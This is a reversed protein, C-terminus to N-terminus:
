VFKSRGNRKRTGWDDECFDVAVRNLMNFPENSRTVIISNIGKPKMGVLLLFLVIMLMMKADSM